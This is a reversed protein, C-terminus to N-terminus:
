DVVTVLLYRVFAALLLYNCFNKVQMAEVAASYLETRELAEARAEEAARREGVAHGIVEEKDRLQQKLSEV